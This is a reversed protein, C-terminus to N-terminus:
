KFMSFNELIKEGKTIYATLLERHKQHYPKTLLLKMIDVFDSIIQYEDEINAFIGNSFYALKFVTIRHLSYRYRGMIKEAILKVDPDEKKFTYKDFKELHLKMEFNTKGTPNKDIKSTLEEIVEERTKGEFLMKIMDFDSSIVLNLTTLYDNTIIAEELAPLDSFLDIRDKWTDLCILQKSFYDKFDKIYKEYFESSMEVWENHPILCFYRPSM